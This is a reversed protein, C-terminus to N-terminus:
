PLTLKWPELPSSRRFHFTYLLEVSKRNARRRFYFRVRSEGGLGDGRVSVVINEANWRDLSSRDPEPGLLARAVEQGTLHSLGPELVTKLWEFRHAALALLIQDTLVRLSQRDKGPVVGQADESITRSHDEDPPQGTPGSCGGFWIFFVVAFLFRLQFM